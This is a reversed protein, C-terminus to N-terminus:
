TKGLWGFKRFRLYIIAVSTIMLSVAAWFGHPSKLAPMWEFNMGYLGAIFNLPMFFVSLVTLIRMTENTRHSAENTRQAVLSIQLQMIRNINEVLDDARRYLREGDEQLDQFFPLSVDPVRDLKKVVDTNERLLRRIVSTVRILHYANKHNYQGADETFITTELMDLGGQAEELPSTFTRITDHLLENLPHSLDTLGGESSRQQWVNKLELLWEQEVRHISIMTTESIFVAVKRTLDRVSEALASRKEDFARVILFAFEEIKEHKPQHHPDLCDEVSTRHLGYTDAIEQLEEKTPAIIDLWEITNGNGRSIIRTIMSTYRIRRCQKPQINAVQIIEPGLIDIDNQCLM